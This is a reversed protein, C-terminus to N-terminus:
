HLGSVHCHNEHGGSTYVHLGLETSWIRTGLIAYHIGPRAVVWNFFKKGAVNSWGNQPSVGLDFAWAPHMAHDSPRGSPLRSASNETGLDSLGLSRGYSYEEWLPRALSDWGQRPEVLHVAPPPLAQKYEILLRDAPADFANAHRLGSEVMPGVWGLQPLGLQLACRKAFVVKAPGYNRRVTVSANNFAEWAQDDKLFRIMARTVGEVDKGPTVGAKLVRTLLNTM